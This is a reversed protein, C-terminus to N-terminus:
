RQRQAYIVTNALSESSAGRITYLIADNVERALEALFYIPLRLGPVFARRGAGTDRFHIGPFERLRLGEEVLAAATAEPVQDM